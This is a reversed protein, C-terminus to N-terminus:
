TQDNDTKFKQGYDCTVLKSLVFINWQTHSAESSLDTETLNEEYANTIIM